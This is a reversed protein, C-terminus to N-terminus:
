PLIDDLTATFRSGSEELEGEIHLRAPGTETWLELFYAWGPMDPEDSKSIAEVRYIERPPLVLAEPCDDEVRRRMDEVDLRNRSLERLEDYDGDVVLEVIGELALYMPDPMPELGEAIKVPGGLSEGPALGLRTYFYDECAARAQRRIGKSLGAVGLAFIGAEIAEELTGHRRTLQATVARGHETDRALSAGDMLISPAEHRDYGACARAASHLVILHDGM